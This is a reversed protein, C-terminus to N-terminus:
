IYNGMTEYGTVHFTKALALEIPIMSNNLMHTTISLPEVIMDQIDIYEEEGDENKITVRRIPRPDIEETLLDTLSIEDGMDIKFMEINYLSVRDLLDVVTSEYENFNPSCTAGDSIVNDNDGLYYIGKIMDIFTDLVARKLAYSLLSYADSADYTMLDTRNMVYYMYLISNGKLVGSEVGEMTSIIADLILEYKRQSEKVLASGVEVEIFQGYITKLRRNLQYKIVDSKETDFEKKLDEYRKQAVPGLPSMIRIGEQDDFQVERPHFLLERLRDLHRPDSDFTELSHVRLSENSGMNFAQYILSEFTLANVLGGIGYEDTIITSIDETSKEDLERYNTITYIAINNFRNVDINNEQLMKIFDKLTRRTVDTTGNCLIVINPHMSAGSDNNLEMMFLGQLVETHAIDLTGNCHFMVTNSETSKIPRITFERRAKILPNRYSTVSFDKEMNSKNVVIHAGSLIADKLTHYIKAALDQDQTCTFLVSKLMEDTMDDKHRGLDFKVDEIIDKWVKRIYTMGFPDLYESIERVRNYLNTYLVALTTTGDGAHKGQDYSAQYIINKIYESLTNSYRLSELVELGDRTYYSHGDKTLFAESASPGFVTVLDEHIDRITRDVIEHMFEGRLANSQINIM